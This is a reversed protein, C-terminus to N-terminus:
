QKNSVPTGNAPQTVEPQSILWILYGLEIIVAIALIIVALKKITITERNM